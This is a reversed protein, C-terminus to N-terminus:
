RIVLKKTATKGAETVKLIYVGASIASVDVNSKVGSFNSSLVKKGLVNFIAFEKKSSSNSTITFTNNTIPNPYTAFGAIANNKVSATGSGTYSGLSDWGSNSDTVIWESSAEDTGASNAWDTNPGSITNKRTLTHNATANTTGAVDWGSGPDVTPVGIIDLVDFTGGSNKKLLAIADDGNYHIASEYALSLDAAALIIADAQDTSIVYVDGNVITGTLALDRTAKWDGGNNSGKIMYDSLDVDSGTGNFIEIFKNNSSGEAYMSIFLDSYQGFSAASFILSLCVTLIYNKKM